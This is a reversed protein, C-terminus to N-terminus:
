AKMLDNSRNPLKIEHESVFISLKKVFATFPREEWVLHDVLFSLSSRNTYFISIRTFEIAFKASGEKPTIFKESITSIKNIIEDTLAFLTDSVKIICDKSMVKFVIMDIDNNKSIGPDLMVIDNKRCHLVRVKM